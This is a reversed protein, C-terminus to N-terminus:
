MWVGMVQRSSQSMLEGINLPPREINVYWTKMRPTGHDTTERIVRSNRMLQRLISATRKESLQFVECIEANTRKKICFEAIRDEINM